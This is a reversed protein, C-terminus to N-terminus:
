PYMGKTIGTIKSLQSQFPTATGQESNTCLRFNRKSGWSHEIPLKVREQVLPGKEIDSM